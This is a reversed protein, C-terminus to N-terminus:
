VQPQDQEGLLCQSTRILGRMMVPFRLVRSGVLGQIQLNNFTAVGSANSTATTTGTLTGGGSSLTATVVIGATDAPDGNGDVIQVVPAPTLVARAAVSAPPQTVMKLKAALGPTPGSSNNSCAALITGGVVVLLSFRSARHRLRDMAGTPGLCSDM